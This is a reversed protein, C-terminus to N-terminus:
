ASVGASIGTTTAITQWEVPEPASNFLNMLQSFLHRISASRTALADSHIARLELEAVANMPDILLIDVKADSRYSFHHLRVVPRLAVSDCVVRGPHVNSLWIQRWCVVIVSFEAGKLLFCSYFM